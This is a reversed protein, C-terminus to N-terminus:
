VFHTALWIGDLGDDESKKKKKSGPGYGLKSELYAIYADEDKEKQSPPLSKPILSSGNAPKSTPKTPLKTSVALTSQSSKGPSNVQKISPFYDGTLITASELKAKKRKPSEVHDDQARHKNSSPTASFFEAKRQKQGIRGQKRTEKRSL